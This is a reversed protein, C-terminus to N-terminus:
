SGYKGGLRLALMVREKDGLNGIVTVRPEPTVLILTPTVFVRDALASEFDTLVDVEEINCRGNLYEQCIRDLNDRALKSNQEGAAIYLRLLYVQEKQMEPTGNETRNM